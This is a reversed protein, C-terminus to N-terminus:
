IDLESFDFKSVQLNIDHFTLDFYERTTSEKKHGVMKAVHQTALGQSEWFQINSHRATKNMINKKIGTFASLEKALEKLKDNYKQESIAEPFVFEKDKGKQQEIIEIANKFRHIPATYPNDNKFREGVLCYGAESNRVNSWKLGKLDSYYFGAYFCFLWHKRAEHLDKREEPLKLNKFQSIEDMTLYVRKKSKTAKVFDSIRVGDLPNFNILGDEMAQKCARLFPKLYKHATNGSLSKKEALWIVLSSFLDKSVHAFPINPNFEDLHKLFTNYVKLTNPKKGRMISQVFVKAYDNFRDRGKRQHFYKSIMELTVPKLLRRQNKEYMWLSHLENKIIDNLEFSKSCSSKIWADEKGNWHKEEIKEDLNLYIHKREVTVRIRISYKGSKNKQTGKKLVVKYHIGAMPM